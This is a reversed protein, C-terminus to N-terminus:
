KFDGATTNRTLQYESYGPLKTMAATDAAKIICKRAGLRRTALIISMADQRQCVVNEPM